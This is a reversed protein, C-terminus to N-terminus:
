VQILIQAALCPLGVAGCWWNANEQLEYSKWSANKNAEDCTFLLKTLVFMVPDDM